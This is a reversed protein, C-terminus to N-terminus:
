TVTSLLLTPASHQPLPNSTTTHMASALVCIFTDLLNHVIDSMTSYQVCRYFVIEISVLYAFDKDEIFWNILSSLFYLIRFKQKKCFTNFNSM